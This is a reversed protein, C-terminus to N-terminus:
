CSCSRLMLLPIAGVIYCLKSPSFGNWCVLKNEYLLGRAVKRPKGWLSLIRIPLIFFLLASPLISLIADEFLLTFDFAGPVAPGFTDVSHKLSSSNSSMDILGAQHSKNM